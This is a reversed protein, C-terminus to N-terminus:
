QVIIQKIDLLRHLSDTKFANMFVFSGTLPLENEEHDSKIIRGYPGTYSGVNPDYGIIGGWRGMKPHWKPTVDLPRPRM